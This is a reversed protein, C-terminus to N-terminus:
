GTKAGKASDGRPRLHVKQKAAEVVGRARRESQELEDRRERAPSALAAAQEVERTPDSQAFMSM